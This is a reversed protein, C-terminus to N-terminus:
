PYGECTINGSDCISDVPDGTPPNSTLGGKGLQMLTLEYSECSV